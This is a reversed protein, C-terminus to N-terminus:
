LHEAPIGVLQVDGVQMCPMSSRKITPFVILYSRYATTNEIAISQGFTKGPADNRASPLNLPGSSILTFASMPITDGSLEANTGYLEYSAPDRGDNDNAVFVHLETVVSGGIGPTVLLGTDKKGFNLYKSTHLRGDIANSPNEAAPWHNGGIFGVTGPVFFDGRKQGGVVPDGPALLVEVTRSAFVPDFQMRAVHASKSSAGNKLSAFVQTTGPTIAGPRISEAPVAVCAAVSPIFLLAFVFARHSVSM